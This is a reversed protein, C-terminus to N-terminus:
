YREKLVSLHHLEHGAIINGTQGVTFQINNAIGTRQMVEASFSKFLMITSQRVAFYEAMIDEPTHYDAMSNHAYINEDYPPLSQTEGRAFSLARCSFIRESDIIHQVVEKISWKEPAYRHMWQQPPLSDFYNKLAEKGAEFATIINTHMVLNTYRDYYSAGLTM